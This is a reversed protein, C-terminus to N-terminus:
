GIQLYLDAAKMQADFNDPESRAQQIAQQVEPMGAGGAGGTGGGADSVGNSPIAPHNPPLGGATAPSATAAPRNMHSQNYSNAFLFGVICGLLLGIISFLINEKTM